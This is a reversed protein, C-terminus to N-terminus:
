RLKKLCQGKVAVLASKDRNQLIYVAFVTSFHFAVVAFPDEFLSRWSTTAIQYMAAAKRFHIMTTLTFDVVM